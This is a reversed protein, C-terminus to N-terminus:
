EAAWTKSPIFPLTPRDVTVRVRSLEVRESALKLLLNADALRWAAEELHMWPSEPQRDYQRLSTWAGYLLGPVERLCSRISQAVDPAPTGCPLLAGRGTPVDIGPIRGRQDVDGAGDELLGKLTQCADEVKVALPAVFGDPGIALRYLAGAQRALAAAASRNEDLTRMTM